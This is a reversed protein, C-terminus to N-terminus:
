RKANPAIRRLEDFFNFIFVVKNLKPMTQAESVAAVAFRDGDPHLDVNVQRPRRMFRAPSWLRPKEAAFVDDDVIYPVVMIRGDPTSYFLENRTRSWTPHLLPVVGGATAGETSIQWKGGTDPFPRVYLENHGSEDSAYAVWRGDPSFMPYTESAPSNLFAYPKGPTWISRENKEMPLIMVDNGSQPSAEVFMLFKGSSHWSAPYQTNKSHTLRQAEGAGDSRQWYLNFASKTDRTSGFVIRRGDPTWVPERDDSPDFTLRALADRMWDYIWVNVQKGDSIDMALRHGDPAFSPNSWNAPTARLQTTKGTRDMWSIPMDDSVAQRPLYVLTGSDAVAFQAGSALDAAVGELVPVPQGVLELRDSDFVAAFLTGEHMYILHGSPVYRGHFYGGRLLVKREGKPLRQVVINASAFRGAQSTYLIAKGGSLVQPWRHITEGEVETVTTLQEPKGGASSVRWLSTGSSPNPSFTITGDSTWTGGGLGNLADAVTVADGGNVSIKKLKGGAFFAISQGDPSFFPNRAADTGPLATAQLQELRRIYLQSNGGASKQAVFALVTGDPSLVAATGQDTVLSAEAGLDVSLRLPVDSQISPWRAYLAMTIAVAAAAVTWPLARVSVRAPHASKIGDVAGPDASSRTLAEDLELRADAIDALRRKRDKELCRRLLKRISAPTEAPLAHWDPERDFVAAITASTTDGRFPCASTLMEYMVCGFSWMDTRKDVAQGRAQEPSMYAPTGLIVGVTSISAPVRAHESTPALAKALGFDLVKVRGDSTVKINAPKLDRHIVAKEHAAELAETIQLALKLSDELPIPGRELCEALTRGEVLELILFRTGQHEELGYIAAINPHNLSALLTAERDLRALRDADHGLEEPLMKIAVERQLTTDHAKWVEGMGGKGIASRIEYHGLRGGRRLRYDASTGERLAGAASPALAEIAPGQVFGGAAAHASLLSEVESRLERDDGCAGRVFREREEVPRELADQLVQKVRNWRPGEDVM